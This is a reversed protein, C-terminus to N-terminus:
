EAVGNKVNTMRPNSVPLLLVFEAGASNVRDRAKIIGSHEEIVSRAIWLGLTTLRLETDARSVM